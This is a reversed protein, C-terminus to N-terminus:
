ILYTDLITEIKDIDWYPIRLLKLNNEKCYDDKISDNYQTYKLIEEGGFWEISEYHQIGDFEILFVVEDNNNQIAFDFPLSYINKCDDFTYENTFNINRETLSDYIIQEGKSMVTCKPCRSGADKFANPFVDWEHGCINHKISIKTRVNKYTGTIKYEGNTLDDIVRSFSETTFTAKRSCHPCKSQGSLINGPYVEWEFLCKNHRIKIKKTIDQYEGLVLYEDNFKNKVETVFEEHTKKKNRINQCMPCRQGFLFNGPTVEYSKSCKSHYIEIKKLAGTYTGLVQYEDGILNYVENVFEEHTKKRRSKGMNILEM